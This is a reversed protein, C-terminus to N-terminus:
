GGRRRASKPTDKLWATIEALQRAVSKPGTGGLLNRRALAAVPDFCTRVDEGFLPSYKKLAGIAMRAISTDKAIADRVLAGIVAHAERFPLGKRVLYDALETAFLNPDLQSRM